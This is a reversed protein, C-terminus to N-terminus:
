IQVTLSPTNTTIPKHRTIAKEGVRTPKTVMTNEFIIALKDLAVM